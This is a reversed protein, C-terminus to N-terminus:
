SRRDFARPLFQTFLFFMRLLRDPDSEVGRTTLTLAVRPRRGPREHRPLRDLRLNLRDRMPHHYVFARFDADAVIARARREDNSRLIFDRRFTPDGPDVDRRGLARALRRFLGASRLSFRFGDDHRYHARLRTAIPHGEQSQLAELVVLAHGVRVLVARARYHTGAVLRGGVARAFHPWFHTPDLLSYRRPEPPPPPAPSDGLPQYNLVAMM